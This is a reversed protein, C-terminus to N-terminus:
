TRLHGMHQPGNTYPFAATIFYSQKDSIIPEFLRAERWAKQWRAEIDNYNLLVIM